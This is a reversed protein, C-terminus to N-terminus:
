VGSTLFNDLFGCKEDLLFSHTNKETELNHRIGHFNYKFEKNLFKSKPSFVADIELGIEM